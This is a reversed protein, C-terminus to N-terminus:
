RGLYEVGPTGTPDLKGNFTDVMGLGSSAWAAGKTNLGLSAEVVRCVGLGSFAVVTGKADSESFAVVTRSPLGPLFLQWVM